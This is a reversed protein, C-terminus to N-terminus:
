GKKSFIFMNKNWMDLRGTSIKKYLNRITETQKLEFQYGNAEFFSIWRKDSKLNIHGPIGRTRSINLFLQPISKLKNLVSLIEDDTMHEFVDFAIFVDFKDSSIEDLNKVYSSLFEGYHKLYLGHAENSYDCGIYKYGLKNMHDIMIGPGCGFDFISKWEPRSQILECLIDKLVGWSSFWNEQFFNDDYVINKSNLKSFIKNLITM